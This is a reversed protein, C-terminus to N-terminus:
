VNFYQPKSIYLETILYRLIQKDFIYYPSYNFFRDDKKGYRILKLKEIFEFIYYVPQQYERLKITNDIVIHEKFADNLIVDYIGFPRFIHMDKPNVNLRKCIEQIELIYNSNILTFFSQLNYCKFDTHNLSYLIQDKSKPKFIEKLNKTM